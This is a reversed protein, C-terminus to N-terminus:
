RAMEANVADVVKIIRPRGKAIAQQAFMPAVARARIARDGPSLVSFITPFDNIDFNRYILSKLFGGNKVYISYIAAGNSIDVENPAIRVVPGYKSHLVAIM